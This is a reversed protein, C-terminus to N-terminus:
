TVPEVRRNLVDPSMAGLRGDAYRVLAWGPGVPPEFGDSLIVRDGEREGDRLFDAVSDLDDGVRILDFPESTFRCKESMPCAYLDRNGTPPTVPSDAPQAVAM